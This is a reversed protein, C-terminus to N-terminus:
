PDILIWGGNTYLYNSNKEIDGEFVMVKGPGFEKDLDVGKKQLWISFQNNGDPGVKLLARLRSKLAELEDLAAIADPDGKKKSKTLEEFRAGEVYDKIIVIREGRPTMMLKPSNLIKPVSIGNEQYFKTAWIELPPQNPYYNAYMKIIHRKDTSLYVDSISFIYEPSLVTQYEYRVGDVEVVEPNALRDDM